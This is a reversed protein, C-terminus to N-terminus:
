QPQNGAAMELESGSKERLPQRKMEPQFKRGNRNGRQKRSAKSKRKAKGLPLRWSGAARVSLGYSLRRLGNMVQSRRNLPGTESQASAAATESVQKAELEKINERAEKEKRDANGRITQTAGRLSLEHAERLNARETALDAEIQAKTLDASKKAQEAPKQAADLKHALWTASQEVTYASCAAWFVAALLFCFWYRWKFFLAMCFLFVPVGIDAFLGITSASYQLLSNPFADFGGLYSMVALAVGAIVALLILMRKALPHMGQQETKMM